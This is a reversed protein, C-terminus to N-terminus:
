APPALRFRALIRHNTGTPRGKPNTCAILSLHKVNPDPHLDSSVGVVLTANGFPKGAVGHSVNPDPNLLDAPYRLVAPKQASRFSARQATTGKGLEVQIVETREWVYTEGDLVVTDGTRLTHINRLPGGGHTRHGFLVTHNPNAASNSDPWLGLDGRDISAKGTGFYINKTKPVRVYQFSRPGVQQKVSKTGWLRPVWVTGVLRRGSAAEATVAGVGEAAVATIATAGLL